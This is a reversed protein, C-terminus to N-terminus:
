HTFNFHNTIWRGVDCTFQAAYADRAQRYNAPIKISQAPTVTASASLTVRRRRGDVEVAHLRANHGIDLDIDPVVPMFVGLAPGLSVELGPFNVIHGRSSM